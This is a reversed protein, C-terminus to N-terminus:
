GPRGGRSSVARPLDLEAALEEPTPERGVAELLRQEAATLEDTGDAGLAQVPVRPLGLRGAVARTIAQRIWWTAYTTFRYGRAPDYNGAARALGTSGAEVLEPFPVGRGAFRQALSVVLWHSGEVLRDGALGGDEAVRELHARTEAPLAGGAALSDEARRGAAIRAALETEEEATLGSAGDAHVGLWVVFQARAAVADYGRAHQQALYAGLRPCFDAIFLGDGRADPQTTVPRM